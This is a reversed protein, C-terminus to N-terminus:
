RRGGNTEPDGAHKGGQLPRGAHKVHGAEGKSQPFPEHVVTTAGGEPLQVQSPGVVSLPNPVTANHDSPCSSPYHLAPHFGLWQCIFFLPGAGSCNRSSSACSVRLAASHAARPPWQSPGRGDAAAPVRTAPLGSSVMRRSCRSRASLVWAVPERNEGGGEHWHEKGGGRQTTHQRKRLLDRLNPAQRLDTYVGRVGAGTGAASTCSCTTPRSFWCVSSSISTM